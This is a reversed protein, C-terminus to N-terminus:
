DQPPITFHFKSGKGEESEIWIKGQHMEVIKKCHALGIGTGEHESNFHLRKFVKFVETMSKEPIGIGNDEITFTWGNNQEASVRIIPPVGNRNFKIGNGILNQFLLRLETEYAVLTPLDDVKVTAGTSEIRSGLDELVSRVLVSCDIKTLEKNRGIAGYDLLDRVLESMRGAAQHMYGIIKRGESNLADHYQMKFIEVLGSITHLPERLDHSVIYNFQKLEKNKLELENKAKELDTVNRLM